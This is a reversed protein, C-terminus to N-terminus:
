LGLRGFYNIEIYRAWQKLYFRDAGFIGLLNSLTQLVARDAKDSM